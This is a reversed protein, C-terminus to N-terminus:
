AEGNPPTAAPTLFRALLRSWPAFVLAVVLAFMTVQFAISWPSGLGHELTARISKEAASSISVYISYSIIRGSFFAITLPVLRMGTVGAGIFLSASPIPSIAFLMLAGFSVARRQEAITRLTDLDRIRRESFRGRFRKALSGLTLRGFAACLAGIPVLLYVPMDYAVNFFVLVTWTPPVFAPMLNIGFVVGALLLYDGLGGM